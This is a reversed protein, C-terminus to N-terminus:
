PVLLGAFFAFWPLLWLTLSLGHAHLYPILATCFRLPSLYKQMGSHELWPCATGPLFAGLEEHPVCTYM